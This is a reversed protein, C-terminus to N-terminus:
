AYKKAVEIINEETIPKAIVDDMGASICSEYSKKDAYSTVGIIKGSYNLINRLRKACEIGDVIPMQIDLWIIDYCKGNEILDLVKKGDAAEDVQYNNRELLTKIIIRNIYCDDVVLFKKYNQM